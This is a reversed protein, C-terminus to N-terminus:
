INVLKREARLYQRLDVRHNGVVLQFREAAQRCRLVQDELSDDNAGEDTHLYRAGKKTGIAKEMTVLRSYM